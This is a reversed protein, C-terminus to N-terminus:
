SGPFDISSDTYELELVFVSGLYTFELTSGGRMRSLADLSTWGPIDTFTAALPLSAQAQDTLTLDVLHTGDMNDTVTYPGSAFLDNFQTDSLSLSADSMGDYGGIYMWGDYFINNGVACGSGSSQFLAFCDQGDITILRYSGGTLSLDFFIEDDLIESVLDAQTMGPLVGGLTPDPLTWDAFNLDTWRLYAITESQDMATFVEYPPLLAKFDAIPNVFFERAALTFTFEDPTGQDVTITTPSALASQVDQIVNRADTVDAPELGDGTGTPDYKIIDDSQDDSEAVLFDLASLLLPAAAEARTLAGALLAGGNPALALFTSGPTLATVFGDPTLPSPTVTYALALNIAALSLELGAKIGYIETFDLELPDADVPLEGQMQETITFTFSPNTLEAMLAAAELVAPSVVDQLVSQHETLSPPPGSLAPARALGVASAGGYVVGELVDASLTPQFGFPQRIAQMAPALLGVAPSMPPTPGTPDDGFDLGVWNDWDELLGRIRADDELLFLATAAAGFAATDNSPAAALAQDFLSHAAAMSFDDLGSVSDINVATFLAAGLSDLAEDILAQADVVVIPNCVLSFAANSTQDATVTVSVPNSGTVSCNAAIGGLQVSANGVPVSAITTAGNASVTGNLTGITVTYQNDLDSGTTATTVQVSGTQAAPDPEMPDSSSCSWTAVVGVVVGLWRIQRPSM